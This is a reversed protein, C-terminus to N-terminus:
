GLELCHSDVTGTKIRSRKTIFKISFHGQISKGKYDM